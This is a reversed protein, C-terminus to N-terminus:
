AFGILSQMATFSSSFEEDCLTCWIGRARKNKKKGPKMIFLGHAHM